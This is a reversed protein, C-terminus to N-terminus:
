GRARPSFRTPPMPLPGRVFVREGPAVTMGLWLRLAAIAGFHTALNRFSCARFGRSVVLRESPLNGGTVAALVTGAGRSALLTLSQDLLLGGIGRRREARSTALYYLYGVSPALMKMMALGIPAQNREAALVEARSLLIRRAHWLYIGGFSDELIPLLDLRDGQRRQEIHIDM